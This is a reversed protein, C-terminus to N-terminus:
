EYLQKSEIKKDLLDSYGEGKKAKQWQIIANTKDGIQFLIDGYHEIITADNTKLLAKEIYIKANEYDKLQYLVWAYTDLYAAENPSKILMKECMKKAKELQEKRLSLYYSYNNLVHVNEPDLLLAEDYSSDSKPHNKIANYSDGLQSLFQVVLDNNNITIKKGTSFQEIAKVYNKKQHFASGAYYYFIPQSPFIEVAKESYKIITDNQNLESALFIIQQWIKYHSNDLSVSQIYNQLAPQKKEQIALIDGNMAFAKAENPHVKVLTNGLEILESKFITDAQIQRIMSILVGIKADINLNPSAFAKQLEVKAEEKKGEKKYVESLMLSAYPSDPYKAMTEELLKKAELNRNNVFLLNALDIVLNQDDPNSAILKKWELIAEDLKNQKLYLLQKQRIIEENLGYLEELKNYTKLAGSFDNTFVQLNAINLLLEDSGEHNEVIKEYIKIAEKYKKTREYLQALLIGYFRNKSDISYAKQAHFIAKENNNQQVYSDAIKFNFAANEPMIKLARAFYDTAKDFRGLIFDKNGEVFFEEAQRLTQEEKLLKQEKKSLKQASLSLSGAM